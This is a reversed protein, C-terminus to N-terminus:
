TRRRPSRTPGLAFVAVDAGAIAIAARFPTRGSGRAGIVALVCSCCLGAVAIWRRAPSAEVVLLASASLLLVLAAARAAGPGWRAAVLQPLGRVGSALDAALDPLVNAFHAGLGLLGAAV